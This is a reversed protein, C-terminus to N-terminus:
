ASTKFERGIDEIFPGFMRSRVRGFVRRYSEFERCPEGKEHRSLYGSCGGDIIKYHVDRRNSVMKIRVGAMKGLVKCFKSEYGSSFLCLMTFGSSTSLKEKVANVVDDNDYLSGKMQNGDDCILMETKAEGLLRLFEKLAVADSNVGRRSSLLAIDWTFFAIVIGGAVPILAIFVGSNEQFAQFVNAFSEM